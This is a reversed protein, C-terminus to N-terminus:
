KFHLISALFLQRDLMPIVLWVPRCVFLSKWTHSLSFKIKRKSVVWKWNLCLYLFFPLSVMLMDIVFCKEGVKLVSRGYSVNHVVFLMNTVVTYLCKEYSMKRAWLLRTSCSLYVFTLAFINNKECTYWRRSILFAQCMVLIYCTAHIICSTEICTWPYM